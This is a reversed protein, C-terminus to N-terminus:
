KKKTGVEVCIKVPRAAITTEICVTGSVDVGKKVRVKSALLIAEDFTKAQIVESVRITYGAM